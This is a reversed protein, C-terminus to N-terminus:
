RGLPRRAVALPAPQVTEAGIAAIVEAGRAAATWLAARVHISVPSGIAAGACAGVGPPALAKGESSAAGGARNSDDRRMVSCAARAGGGFRFTFFYGAIVAWFGVEEWRAAGAVDRARLV